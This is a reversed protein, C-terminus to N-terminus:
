CAPIRCRRPGGVPLGLGFHRGGFGGQVRRGDVAYVLTFAGTEPRMSAGGHRGASQDSLILGVGQGGHLLKVGHIHVEGLGAAVHQAEFAKLRPSNFDLPSAAKRAVSLSSSPLGIQLADGLFIGNGSLSYPVFGAIGNILKLRNDPGQFKRFDRHLLAGARDGDPGHEGVRFANQQGPHVYARNKLFADIVLSKEHRLFRDNAVAPSLGHDLEQRLM